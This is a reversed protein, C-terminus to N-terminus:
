MWMMRDIAPPNSLLKVQNFQNTAVDTLYRQDGTHRYGNLKDLSKELWSFLKSVPPIFGTIWSLLKASGVWVV